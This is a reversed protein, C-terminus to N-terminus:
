AHSRKARHTTTTAKKTSTAKKSTTKKTTTSKKTTTPKATTAGASSSFISDPKQSSRDISRAQFRDHLCVTNPLLSPPNLTAARRLPLAPESLLILNSHLFFDHSVIPSM